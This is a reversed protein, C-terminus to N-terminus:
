MRPGGHYEPGRDRYADVLQPHRWDRGIRRYYERRDRYKQLLDGTWHVPVWTPPDGEKPEYMKGPRPKIPAAQFPRHPGPRAQYQPPGPNDLLLPVRQGNHFTVGFREKDYWTRGIPFNPNTELWALIDSERNHDFDEPWSSPEGSRSEKERESALRKQENEFPNSM